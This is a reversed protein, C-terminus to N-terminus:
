NLLEVVQALGGVVFDPHADSSLPEKYRNVWISRIGLQQTPLIDHYLSQAIHVVEEREAGTRRLFETWHGHAPKYSRVDEATVFGDIGLGNIKITAELLDTDVNSLIYRQFGKAGMAELTSATDPFAPWLPVSAAFRAAAGEGPRVGMTECLSLATKRLVDRYKQYTEEEAKEATVYANM